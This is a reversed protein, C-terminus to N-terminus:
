VHARGIKDVVWVKDGAATSVVGRPATNATNLAYNEVAVGTASYEYTRDATSDNVVYFKTSPVVDNDTNTLNIDAPNLGNYLADTSSAAGIVVTYAINGDVLTDDVGTVTVTQVTNWNTPTFTLSGASVAGETTDSSSIAITVNATPASNLKVTFSVAGGAETTTVGSPASVTIGATDDDLNTLAVDAPNLGNYQADASTAAGTVVSYAINGDSRFLM